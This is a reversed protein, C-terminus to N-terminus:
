GRSVQERSDRRRRAVGYAVAMGVVVLGAFALWGLGYPRDLLSPNDPLAGFRGLVPIALLTVAGLVVLGAVLPPRVRVPLARIGFAWAGIVLPALVADHVVVGGILWAVAWALNSVGLRLLSYAGFIGLLLGSAVLAARLPSLGSM